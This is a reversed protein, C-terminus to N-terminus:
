KLAEKLNYFHLDWKKQLAPFMGNTNRRDNLDITEQILVRLQTVKDKMAESGNPDRIEPWEHRPVIRKIVSYLIGMSREPATHLTHSLGALKPNHLERVYLLTGQLTEVRDGIKLDERLM